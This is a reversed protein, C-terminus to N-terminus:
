IHIYRYLVAFFKIFLLILVRVWRRDDPTLFFSILTIMESEYVLVCVINHACSIYLSISLLATM